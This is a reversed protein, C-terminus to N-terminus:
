EDKNINNIADIIDKKDQERQLILNDVKEEVNKSNTEIREIAIELATIRKEKDKADTKIETKIEAQAAEAKDQARAISATRSGFWIGFVILAVGIIGSTVAWYAKSTNKWATLSKVDEHDEDRQKKCEEDPCDGM